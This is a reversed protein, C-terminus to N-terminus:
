FLVLVIDELMMVASQESFEDSGEQGVSDDRLFDEIRWGIEWEIM